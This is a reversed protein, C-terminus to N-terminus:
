KEVFAWSGCLTILKPFIRLLNLSRVRSAISASVRTKSSSDALHSAKFAFSLSASATTATRTSRTDMSSSGESMLSVKEQWFSSVSVDKAQSIRSKTSTFFSRMNETRSMTSKDRPPLAPAEGSPARRDMRKFDKLTTVTQGSAARRHLIIRAAM